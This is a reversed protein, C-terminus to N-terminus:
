PDFPKMTIMPRVVDPLSVFSFCLYIWDASKRRDQTMLRYASHRSGPSFIAYTAEMMKALVAPSKALKESDLEHYCYALGDLNLAARGAGKIWWPDSAAVMRDVFAQGIFREYHARYEAKATFAHAYIYSEIFAGSLSKARPMLWEADREAAREDAPNGTLRAYAYAAALSCGITYTNIEPAYIRTPKDLKPIPRKGYDHLCWGVGIGGGECRFSDRYGMYARLSDMFQKQQEGKTYSVLRAMAVAIEGGDAVYCSEGKSTIGYGMRYGGDERQAEIMTMGWDIAAQRYKGHGLIEYAGLLGRAGRNDVFSTGGFQGNGQGQEVFFDGVDRLAQMTDLSAVLEADTIPVSGTDLALRAEFRQWDFQSTPITLVSLQTWLGPRLEARHTHTRSVDGSTLVLKSAVAVPKAGRNFIPLRLQVVVGNKPDVVFNPQIQRCIIGENAFRIVRVLSDRLLENGPAMLDVRDLGFAAWVSSAYEGRDFSAMVGVAGLDRGQADAVRLLPICRATARAAGFSQKKKAPRRLLPPDAAFTWGVFPRRIPGGRIVSQGPAASLQAGASFRSARGFSGAFRGPRDDEINSGLFRGTLSAGADVFQSLVVHESRVRARCFRVKDLGFAHPGKGVMGTTFGFWVKLGHEPRFHDPHQGRGKTAYSLFSATHIRYEAWAMQLPVVYKWRSRDREQLEICLFPTGGDGRARFTLIEADSPLEPLKCGTYAFAKLDTANFRLDTAEGRLDLRDGDGAHSSEWTVDSDVEALVEGADNAARWEEGCKFIPKGFPRGAASVFSGGGALFRQLARGGLAPYVGAYPLVLTGFQSSSLKEQSCLDETSLSQAALGEKALLQVIATPDTAAELDLRPDDWVAVASPRGTGKPVFGPVVTLSVDDIWVDCSCAETQDWVSFRVMLTAAAPPIPRSTGAGFTITHKKWDFAKAGAGISMGGYMKVYGGDIDYFYLRCGFDGKAVGGNKLYASVVYRTDPFLDEGVVFRRTCDIGAVHGDAKLRVCKKGSHAGGASETTAIASEPGFARKWSAMGLEFSPNPILSASDAAVPHLLALLLVASLPISRTEM